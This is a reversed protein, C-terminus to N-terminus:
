YHALSGDLKAQRMSVQFLWLSLPLMLAAYILLIGVQLTLDSLPVGRLIALRVGELAHTQPLVKSVTQMWGPLLTIPFVAGSMLGGAVIIGRTFPDSQKFVLTFAASILGLSGLVAMILGLVVLAAGFNANQFKVGVLFLGGTLYVAMFLTSRIVPYLSWGVIMTAINTRTLLMTELTGRIQSGRLSAVSAGLAVGSYTTVVLGVLLFAMYNGGYPTLSSADLRGLLKSMFHLGILPLFIGGISLLAAMRYSRQFQWDLIVFALLKRM